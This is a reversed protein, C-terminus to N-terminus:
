CHHCGLALDDLMAEAVPRGVGDDWRVWILALETEAGDEDMLM